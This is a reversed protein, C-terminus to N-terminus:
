GPSLYDTYDLPQQTPAMDRMGPADVHRIPTDQQRKSAVPAVFKQSVKEPVFPQQQQELPRPVVAKVPSLRTQKIRTPPAVPTMPPAVQKMPPAVSKVPSMSTRQMPKQPSMSRKQPSMSRKQPSMSRRPATRDPTEFRRKADAVSQPVEEVEEQVEPQQKPVPVPYAAAKPM